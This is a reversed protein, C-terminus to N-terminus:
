VRGMGRSVEGHLPPVASFTQAGGARISWDSLPAFVVSDEGELPPCPHPHPGRVAGTREYSRDQRYVVFESSRYRQSSSCSTPRGAGRTMAREVHSFDVMSGCRAAAKLPPSCCIVTNVPMASSTANRITTASM